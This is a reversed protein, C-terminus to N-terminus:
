CKYVEYEKRHFKFASRELYIIEVKKMQNLYCNYCAIDIYRTPIIKKNKM